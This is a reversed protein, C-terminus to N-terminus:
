GQLAELTATQRAYLRESVATASSPWAINFRTRATPRYGVARHKHHCHAIAAAKPNSGFSFQIRASAFCRVFVVESTLLQSHPAWRGREGPRRVAVRTIMLVASRRSRHLAKNSATPCLLAGKRVLM